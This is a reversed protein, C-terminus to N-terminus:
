GGGREPARDLSDAYGDIWGLVVHVLDTSRRPVVRAVGHYLIRKRHGTGEPKIFTKGFRDEDIGTVGAWFSIEQREDQGSHLHLRCAMDTTGRDLYTSSWDIFLRIM